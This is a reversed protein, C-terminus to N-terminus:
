SLAALIPVVDEPAPMAAIAEAQRRAARRYSDDDLLTRVATSIAEPTRADPALALVAGCRTGAESNRFQDAAQPLCLQPVGCTLAGLFTGSGAHSVVVACRPLVMTQPVYQQVTVHAPQKGLAAPPASPGVTVLLRVGLEAIAAVAPALAAATNQVTGLTLYVLPGDDTLFAPPEAPEPGNYPVPRLPQVASIHDIPVIRADPPAIDLYLTTFCGAYPPIDHGHEAWLPALREGADALIPAPIPGGFSHTVSPVGLVAGALPAALEGHEHVLLEPRWDRALALLDVVMPRTLLEGFMRPFVYPARQEGPLRAAPELVSRRGERLAVGSLGAPAFALGADQVLPAVDQSAAYRVDHGAALFARALPVTPYVHGYGPSSSFLVRMEPCGGM